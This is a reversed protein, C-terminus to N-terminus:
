LKELLRAGKSMLWRNLTRTVLTIVVVCILLFQMGTLYKVAFYGGVGLLIAVLWGGFLCIMVGMSQKVPATENTWTLNPKKLNIMLGLSASFMVFVVGFLTVLGLYTVSLDTAVCFCVSMIVVPPISLAWHLRKKAELVKAMDVPLTQLVWLNKGELSISPASIDNMSAVMCVIAAVAIAVFDASLGMMEVASWIRERFILVAIGSAPMLVTGLACNLMYTPSAAFRKWEKKFLAADMGSAKVQKEQYVAKAAASQSRTAISIFSHSLVAYTAAFIVAIAVTVIVMALVDGEGAKGLLYLPYISSKITISIQEAQMLIKQIMSYYNFCIYYYVVFFLLSVIVTIFSKNKLKGAVQAVCWGLACTLALVFFGLVFMLLITNIASIVGPTGHIFYAIMVPVYVLAEYLMSMAYVGVMRVLLIKKPPIPMSLLLENDKAQYLGAYTNFVGGFVGMFVAMMSMLSFYLWTLGAPVLASAFMSAVFYFAAGIGCFLLVYLVIFGITGAKSRNKGTKRNQFYFTNLELFQKKLLAKLMM